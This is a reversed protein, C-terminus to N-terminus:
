IELCSACVHIHVLASEQNIPLAAVDQFWGVHPVWGCFKVGDSQGSSVPQLVLQEMDHHPNWQSCVCVAAVNSRESNM